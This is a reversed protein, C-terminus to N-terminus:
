CKLNPLYDVILRYGNRAEKKKKFLGLGCKGKGSPGMKTPWTHDGTWAGIV